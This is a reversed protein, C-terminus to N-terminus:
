VHTSLWQGVLGSGFSWRRVGMATQDIGEGVGAVAGRCLERRDPRASIGAGCRRWWHRAACM